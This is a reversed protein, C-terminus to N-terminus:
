GSSHASCAHSYRSGIGLPRGPQVPSHLTVNPSHRQRPKCCGPHVFAEVAVLLSAPRPTRGSRSRAAKFAGLDVRHKAGEGFGHGWQREYRVNRSSVSVRSRWGRTLLAGHGADPLMAALCLQESDSCSISHDIHLAHYRAGGSRTPYPCSQIQAIPASCSCIRADCCQYCLYLLASLRTCRSPRSLHPASWPCVGQEINGM